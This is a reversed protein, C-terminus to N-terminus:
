ELMEGRITIYFREIKQHQPDVIAYIVSWRTVIPSHSPLTDLKTMIVYRSDVTKEPIRYWVAKKLCSSKKFAAMEEIAYESLQTIKKATLLKSLKKYHSAANALLRTDTEKVSNQGLIISDVEPINEMEKYFFVEVNNIRVSESAMSTTSFAFILLSVIMAKFHVYRM